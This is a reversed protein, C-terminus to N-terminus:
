RVILAVGIANGALNVFHIPWLVARRIKGQCHCCLLVMTVLAWCLHYCSIAMLWIDLLVYFKNAQVCVDRHYQWGIFMGWMCFPLMLFMIVMWALQKVLFQLKRDFPETAM